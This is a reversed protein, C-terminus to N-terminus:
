PQVEAELSDFLNTKVANWFSALVHQPILGSIEMVEEKGIPYEPGYLQKASQM